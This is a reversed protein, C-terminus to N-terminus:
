FQAQLMLRAQPVNQRSVSGGTKAALVTSQDQLETGVYDGVGPEEFVPTNILIPFDVIAKLRDGMVRWTFSPVIEHIPATGTITQGTYAFDISPGLVDYKLAVVFPDHLVATQLRLGWISLDGYGNSYGAFDLQGEAEFAWDNGLATRVAADGGVQYYDGQSFNGVGGAAIFPNWDSDIVISKDVQKVNLITSHGLTSDRTYLANVSIEYKTGENMPQSERLYFPNDDMNGVGVRLVLEPIGLTQPLYHDPPVDRGGGTFVGGVISVPGPHSVIALGVDRGVVFGINNMSVDAFDSFGPDTLQERGYPVLFQGVKLYTTAKSDLPINAAMDLLGIAVGSSTTLDAGGMALQFNFSYRDYNGDMRLRAQPLFLYMRGDARIPENVYQALGLAQAMAGIDLSYKDAKLVNFDVDSYPDPVPTGDARATAGFLALALGAFILHTTRM